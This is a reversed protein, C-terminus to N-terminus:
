VLKKLNDYKEDFKIVLKKLRDLVIDNKLDIDHAKIEKPIDKFNTSESIKDFFEKKNQVFYNAYGEGDDDEGDDNEDDDYFTQGQKSYLINGENTGQEFDYISYFKCSEDPNKTFLVCDDRISCYSACKNIDSEEPIDFQSYIDDSIDNSEESDIIKDNEQNYENDIINEDKLFSLYINESTNTTLDDGSISENNIMSVCKGIDNENDVLKKRYNFGKCEINEFCNRACQDLSYINGQNINNESEYIMNNENKKFFPSCDNNNVDNCINDSYPNNIDDQIESIYNLKDEINETLDNIDRSLKDFEQIIDSDDSPSKLTNNETIINDSSLPRIVDTIEIDNQSNLEPFGPFIFQNEFGDVYNESYRYLLYLFIGYLLLLTINM